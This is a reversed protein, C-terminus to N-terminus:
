CSLAAGSSPLLVLCGFHREHTCAPRELMVSDEVFVWSVNPQMSFAPERAQGLRLHIM